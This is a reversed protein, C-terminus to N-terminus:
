RRTRLMTRPTTSGRQLIDQLRDGSPSPYRHAHDVRGTIVSEVVTTGFELNEPLAGLFRSGGAGLQSSALFESPPQDLGHGAADHMDAGGTRNLGGVGLRESDEAQGVVLDRVPICGVELCLRDKFVAARTRHLLVRYRPRERCALSLGGLRDSHLTGIATCSTPRNEGRDGDLFLVPGELARDNGEQVDGISFM